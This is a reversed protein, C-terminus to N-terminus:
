RLRAVRLHSRHIRQDAFGVIAAEIVNAPQVNAGLVDLRRNLGGAISRDLLAANAGTRTCPRERPFPADAGRRAPEVRALAAVRQTNEDLAVIAAIQRHTARRHPFLQLWGRSFGPGEQPIESLPRAEARCIM